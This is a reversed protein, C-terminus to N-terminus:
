RLGEAELVRRKQEEDIWIDKLPHVDLLNDYFGKVYPRVMDQTVYSYLPIIPLEEMLIAEARHFHRMRLSDDTENHAMEVLRDYEGNGWRTHNNPNGTTFMELFTNPDIYDATWGARAVHYDGTRRSILYATWEQNRLGVDIGLTQKWQAQILEAIAQHAESTNYLVDIKPFGRGRPYGAEALLAKAKEVNRPECEAPLYATSKSIDPPVLSRVPRQGARM